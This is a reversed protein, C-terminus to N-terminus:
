HRPIEQRHWIKAAVSMEPTFLVPNLDSGYIIFVHKINKIFFYFFM